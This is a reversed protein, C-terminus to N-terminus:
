SATDKLLSEVDQFPQIVFHSGVGGVVQLNGENCARLAHAVVVSM